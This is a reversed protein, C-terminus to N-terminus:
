VNIPRWRDAEISNISNSGYPGSAVDDLHAGLVRSSGPGSGDIQTSSYFLGQDTLEKRGMTAAITPPLNVDSEDPEDVQSKYSFLIKPESSRFSSLFNFLLLSPSLKFQWLFPESYLGLSAKLSPWIFSHHLPLSTCSPPSMLLATLFFFHLSYKLVALLIGVNKNRLFIWSEFVLQCWSCIVWIERVHYVKVYWCAQLVSWLGEIIDACLLASGLGQILNLQALIAAYVYFSRKALFSSTSCLTLLFVPVHKSTQLKISSPSCRWPFAEIILM